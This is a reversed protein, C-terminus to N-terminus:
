WDDFRWERENFSRKQGLAARIRVDILANTFFHYYTISTYLSNLRDLRGQAQVHNKYSCTLSYLIMADTSTCNWGESGSQYQVLYAWKNGEPIGEHRHGNWEATPVVERLTRLIELEYDFNYFIVIREHCELLKRCMEIRSPDSNVLKRMLRFLEAADHIPKDTYPNWRKKTILKWSVEDYGMDLWNHIREIHSMYPMEVLIEGRLEELREEGVYRLISPFKVYPRYVVHRMKFDHLNKYWGNAIFVPAYDIWADGPTATLLIWRNARAIKLFSKVWAGSGVLRQEDFIFFCDKHNVYRGVNHWSDVTLKGGNTCSRDTSIGFRAAEGDWDLSDRKKATTIVYIDKGFEKEMYYALATISKGAGVGGYLIRGNDLSAVAEEQHQYLEVM